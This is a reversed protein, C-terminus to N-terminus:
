RVRLVDTEGIRKLMLLTVDLMLRAEERRCKYTTPHAAQNRLVVAVRLLLDIPLLRMFQKGFHGEQQLNTSRSRLRDLISGIQNVYGAFDTVEKETQKSQKCYVYLTKAVDECLIGLTATSREYRAEDTGGRFYDELAQIVLRYADQAFDQSYECLVSRAAWIEEQYYLLELFSQRAVADIEKLSELTVYDWDDLYELDSIPTGLNSPDKIQLSHIREIKSISAVAYLVGTHAKQGNTLDIIIDQRDFEGLLRALSLPIVTQMEDPQVVRNRVEANASIQRVLRNRDSEYKEAVSQPTDFVLLVELEEGPYVAQVAQCVNHFTGLNTNGLTVLVSM